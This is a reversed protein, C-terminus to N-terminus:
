KYLTVPQSLFWFTCTLKNISYTLRDPKSFLASDM